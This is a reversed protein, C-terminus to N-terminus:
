FKKNGCDKVCISQELLGFIFVFHSPHRISLSAAAMNSYPWNIIQCAHIQHISGQLQSRWCFHRPIKLIYVLKLAHIKDYTSVLATARVPVPKSERTSFSIYFHLFTTPKCGISITVLYVIQKIQTCRKGLGERDISKSLFLTRM